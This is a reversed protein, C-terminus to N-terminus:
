LFSAGRRGSIKMIYYLSDERIGLPKFGDLVLHLDADAGVPHGTIKDSLAEEFFDLHVAAIIVSLRERFRTGFTVEDVPNTGAFRGAM